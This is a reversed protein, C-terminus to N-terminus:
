HPVCGDELLFDLGPLCGSKQSNISSDTDYKISRATSTGCNQEVALQKSDRVSPSCSIGALM